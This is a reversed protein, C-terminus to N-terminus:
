AGFAMEWGMDMNMEAWNWLSQAARAIARSDDVELCSFGRFVLLMGGVVFV